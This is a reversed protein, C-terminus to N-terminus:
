SKNQRVVAEKLNLASKSRIGQNLHYEDRRKAVFRCGSIPTAQKRGRNRDGVYERRYLGLREYGQGVDLLKTFAVEVYREPESVYTVDYVSFNM